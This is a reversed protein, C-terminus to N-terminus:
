KLIDLYRRKGFLYFSLAVSGHYMREMIKHDSVKRLSAVQRRKRSILGPHFLIWVHAKVIAGARGWDRQILSFGLAMYDLLIRLPFIYMTMLLRYNALLMLLSNRHNLYKKFPSEAGLTFGSRHWILAKPEVAIDYGLLQIRWQLDIEEMHAFFTEDFLGAKYLVGTRALFATGSAWFIRDYFQDYQGEDKEVHEAIRGHAFPFGFIDMEGGCAGSYDFYGWNQFSHIKPQVVAIKDDSQLKSLLREIWGSSHVTDNNLILVFPTRTAKVGINCGGAFGHNKEMQIIEVTPFETRVMAVSGDSSANDVLIIHLPLRCTASLSALCDRLIGEGNYHPIVVSIQPDNRSM